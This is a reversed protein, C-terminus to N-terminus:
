AHCSAAVKMAPDVCAVVVSTHWGNSLAHFTITGKGVGFDCTWVLLSAATQSCRMPASWIMSGSTLSTMQRRFALSAATKACYSPTGDCKRPDPAAQASAALVATTLVAALLGCKARNTM